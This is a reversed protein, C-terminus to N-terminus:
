WTWSLLDATTDRGALLVNVLQERVLRRDRLDDYLNRIFDYKGDRAKDQNPKDLAAKVWRDTYERVQSCATLYQPPWCLWYLYALQVRIASYWSATDLSSGLEDKTEEDLSEASEGFLLSTSTDLTFNCFLPHLDIVADGHRSLRKILSEVHGSFIKLDHYQIRSFQKRLLDRSRRWAIGDQTFLGEGFLPM